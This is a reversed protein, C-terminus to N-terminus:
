DFDGFAGFDDDDDSFEVICSESNPHPEGNEDLVSTIANKTLLLCTCDWARKVIATGLFKNDNACIQSLGNPPNKLIFSGCFLNKEIRLDSLSEPLGTFSLDGSFNNKSINLVQLKNALSDLRISGIFQNGSIDFYNLEQPLASLDCSGSLRNNALICQILVAPLNTFDVGGHFEHGLLSFFALSDPLYATEITGGVIEAFKPPENRNIQFSKVNQPIYSLSVTGEMGELFDIETVNKEADCSVGRWDCVDLYSGNRDQFHRTSADSLGQVLVEMCEQDSMSNYIIRDFSTDITIFSQIQFM